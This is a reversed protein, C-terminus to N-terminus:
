GKYPKHPRKEFFAMLAEHRDEGEYCKAYLEAELEFSDELSLELGDRASKKFNRVCIPPCDAIGEAIERAKKSLDEAEVLCEIIGLDYSEQGSLQRGTLLIEMARSYGVTRTLLQTGGWATTSGITVSPMGIRARKTAITFDAALILELGAGLAYGDVVCIVPVRCQRIARITKFGHYCFDKANETTLKFEENLDGGATFAKEISSNILVVRIDKNASARNLSDCLEEHMGHCFANLVKPRDLTITLVHNEIMEKIYQM